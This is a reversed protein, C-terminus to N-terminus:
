RRIGGFRHEDARGRRGTARTYSRQFDSLSESRAIV